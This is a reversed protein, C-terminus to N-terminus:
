RRTPLHDLPNESDSGQRIEFHLQPSTVAGTQGVTAIQQGTRVADGRDVLLDQAHAYATVWGEEHRVIVLNGYGRLENGAYVVTGGRSALIPTGVPAAVNIGENFRDREGPDFTPILDGQLPWQFQPDGGTPAPPATPGPPLAAVQTGDTPPVEADLTPGLPAALVPGGHHAIVEDDLGTGVSPAPAPGATAPPPAEFGTNVPTVGAPALPVADVGATGVGAAPAAPPPAFATPSATPPPPTWAQAAQVDAANPPIQLTQGARIYDPDDIGNAAILRDRRVGYDEAISFVSEGSAVTHVRLQPVLLRDGAFIANATPLRNVQMLTQADVGYRAALADLSEGHQVTAVEWGPPAGITPPASM